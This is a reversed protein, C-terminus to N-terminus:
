FCRLAQTRALRVDRNHEKIREHMSRGTEGIYVVREASSAASTSFLILHLLILGDVTCTQFVNARSVPRQKM